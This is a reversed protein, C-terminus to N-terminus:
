ILVSVKRTVLVSAVLGRFRRERPGCIRVNTKFFTGSSRANTSSLTVQSLVKSAPLFPWGISQGGEGVDRSVTVSDRMMVSSSTWDFINRRLSRTSTRQANPGTRLSGTSGNSLRHCGWPNGRGDVWGTICVEPSEAIRAQRDDARWPETM